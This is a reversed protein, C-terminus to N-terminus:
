EHRAQTRKPAGCRRGGVISRGRWPRGGGAGIAVSPLAQMLTWGLPQARFVVYDVIRLIALVTAGLVGAFLGNLPQASRLGEFAVYAIIVWPTWYWFHADYASKGATLMSQLELPICVEAVILALVLDPKRWLSKV